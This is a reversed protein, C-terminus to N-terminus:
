CFLPPSTDSAQSLFALSSPTGELDLDDNAHPRVFRVLPAVASVFVPLSRLPLARSQRVSSVLNHQQHQVVAPPDPITDLAEGILLVCLVVAAIRFIITKATQRNM